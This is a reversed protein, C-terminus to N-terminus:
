QVEHRLQQARDGVLAVGLGSGDLRLRYGRDELPAVDHAAGLGAGALGGAERQRHQLDERRVRVRTRRRRAVRYAREDERRSALKGRLDCFADANVALVQRQARRHHVAPDIDLGLLFRQVAADFDEDCSRAAKEIM